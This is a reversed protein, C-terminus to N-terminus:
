VTRIEFISMKSDYDIEGMASCKYIKCANLQANQGFCFENKNEVWLATGEQKM